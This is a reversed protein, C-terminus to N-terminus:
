LSHVYNEIEMHFGVSLLVRDALSALESSKTAILDHENIINEFLLLYFQFKISIVM